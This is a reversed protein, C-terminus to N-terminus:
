AIATQPLDASGVSVTGNRSHRERCAVGFADFIALSIPDERVRWEPHWQLGLAFTTAGEVSLGEITGDAAVAEIRLGPAVRDVGQGHLSNVQVRDRGKLIQRLLGGQTVELEHRLAYREEHPKTKDSRHDDRGPVEWLHQHLTGGFAVNLEQIGRCVALLPVGRAVARRILPLVTADRVPDDLNGERPTPGGYHDPGVNSPSGTLFVGDLRDLLADIELRSGLAPIIVPVADAGDVIADVYKAVVGHLRADDTRRLCASVGILPMTGLRSM